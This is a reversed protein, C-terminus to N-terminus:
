RSAGSQGVEILEKIFAKNNADKADIKNQGEDSPNSGHLVYNGQLDFGFLYDNHNYRLGRLMERATKQADEKSLVGDAELKQHFKLVGMGMEVINQTKIKRDELMSSKFQVLAAFSLCVLGILTLGILVYMRTTIRSDTILKM